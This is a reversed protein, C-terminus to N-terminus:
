GKGRDKKRAFDCTQKRLRKRQTNYTLENYGTKESEM